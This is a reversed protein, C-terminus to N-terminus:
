APCRNWWSTPDDPTSATLKARAQDCMCGLCLPTKVHYPDAMSIGVDLPQDCYTCTTPLSEDLNVRDFTRNIAMERQNDLVSQIAEDWDTTM